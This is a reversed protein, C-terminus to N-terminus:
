RKVEDSKPSGAKGLILAWMQVDLGANIKATMKEAAERLDKETLPRRDSNVPKAMESALCFCKSVEQGCGQCIYITRMRIM